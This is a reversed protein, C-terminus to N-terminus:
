TLHNMRIQNYSSECEDKSIKNGRGDGWIHVWGLQSQWWDIIVFSFIFINEEFIIIAGMTRLFKHLEKLIHCHSQNLYVHWLHTKKKKKKKKKKPLKFYEM